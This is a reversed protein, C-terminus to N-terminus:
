KKDSLQHYSCFFLSFGVVVDKGNGDLGSILKGDNDLISANSNLYDAIERNADESMIATASVTDGDHDANYKGIVAPHISVSQKVKCNLRPYEPIESSDSGNYMTVIRGPDTSTIHGEFLSLGEINVVPYRIVAFHKGMAAKYTALYLMEIYTLPHVNSEDYVTKDLFELKRKDKLRPPNHARYAAAISDLKDYQHKGRRVIHESAFKEWAENTFIKSIGNKTHIEVDKYVVHFDGYEDVESGQEKALQQLDEWVPISAIIDLDDPIIDLGYSYLANTGVIAYQEPAYKDDLIYAYTYEKNEDPNLSRYGRDKFSNIDRYLTITDNTDYVLQLYFETLLKNEYKVPTKLKVTVPKFQVEPDRFDNIINEMGESTTFKRFEKPDVEHYEVAHTYPHVLAVTNGDAQNFISSLFLRRLQYVVLPTLSKAAEFLPMEVETIKFANCADPAKVRTMPAATIVNRTGYVLSRNAYKGQGFGHKGDMMGRIYDYIEVVKNQMQYRISDYVPDESGQIPLAQSLSLLALYLKNIAESEPRGNKIKVDRVGAPLVLYKDIFLCDKYKELLKIKDTRQYSDTEAFKIKPYVSIFFSYGTSGNPDNADTRVLDKLQNDFYAYQKGALIDKYYSKLSILQRYLHPTIIRTHLDIYGRRILREKSGVQGFIVESFLGDPHFRDTSSEYMAHVTVPYCDKRKIYENPDIMKVNFPALEAM